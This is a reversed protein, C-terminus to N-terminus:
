EDLQLHGFDLAVFHRRMRDFELHVIRQSKERAVEGSVDRGLLAFPAGLPAGKTKHTFSSVFCILRAQYFSILSRWEVDGAEVPFAHHSEDGDRRSPMPKGPRFGVSSGDVPESSKVIVEVSRAKMRPTISATVVFETVCAASREIVKVSPAPDVSSPSRGKLVMM